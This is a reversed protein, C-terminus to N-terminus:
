KAATKLKHTLQDFVATTFYPSMFSITPISTYNLKPLLNLTWFIGKPGFIQHLFFGLFFHLPDPFKSSNQILHHHPNFFSFFIELSFKTLLFQLVYLSISNSFFASKKFEFAVEEFIPLIKVKSFRCCAFLSQCKTALFYHM